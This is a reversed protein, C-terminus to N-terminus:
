DGDDGSLAPLAGVSPAALMPSRKTWGLSISRATDALELNAQCSVSLEVTGAEFDIVITMADRSYTLTRELKREDFTGGQRELEELADAVNDYSALRKDFTVVFRNLDFGAIVSKIEERQAEWGDRLELQRRVRWGAPDDPDQDVLIRFRFAPTDVDGGGDGWEAQGDRRGFGLAKKSSALLDDLEEELGEKMLREIWADVTSSHKKPVHHSRSDYGPLSRISGTEVGELFVDTNTLALDALDATVAPPEPVHRIRFTHASNLVARPTQTGRIKTRTTIFSRIESRLWDRLSVDTLWRGNALARPDEGRLARLLHWTFIGHGIAKSSYSKEGDSCSLFVGIYDEGELEHAIDADSLELILSRSFVDKKMTEACADIFLLARTCESKRVRAIITDNLDVTTLGLQEPNSDWATLRNSGEIQCGHGAYFFVFLDTPALNSILYNAQDQITTLTAHGGFLRHADVPVLGDYVQEITAVFTEADDLAFPVDEIAQRGPANQYDEIAVAMVVVRDYGPVEDADGRVIVSM